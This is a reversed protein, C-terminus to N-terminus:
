ALRGPLGDADLFPLAERQWQEMGGAVVAADLGLTTLLDAAQGALPIHVAGAIAGARWEDDERVDLVLLQGRRAHVQGPDM